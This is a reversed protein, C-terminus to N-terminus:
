TRVQSPTGEGSTPTRPRPRRLVLVAVGYGVAIGVWDALTDFPDGTRHLYFFHQIVESVVAHLAFVAVVLVATRTAPRRGPPTSAYSAALLILFVPAGFGILHEAKDINPFWSPSPPGTSRYLGFLHVLVSLAALM